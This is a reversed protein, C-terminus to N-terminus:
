LHNRHLFAADDFRVALSLLNVHQSKSIISPSVAGGAELILLSGAAADQLTCDMASFGDLWGASVGAM